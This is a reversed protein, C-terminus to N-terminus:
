ELGYVAGVRSLCVRYFDQLDLLEPDSHGGVEMYIRM